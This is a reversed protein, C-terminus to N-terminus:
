GLSRVAAVSVDRNSQQEAKVGKLPMQNSQGKSAEASCVPATRSQQHHQQQHTADRVASNGILNGALLSKPLGVVGTWGQMTEAILRPDTGHGRRGTGCISPFHGEEIGPGVPSLDRTTKAVGTGGAHVELLPRMPINIPVLTIHM